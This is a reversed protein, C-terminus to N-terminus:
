LGKLIECHIKVLINVFKYSSYSRRARLLKQVFLFFQPLAERGSVRLWLATGQGGGEHGFAPCAPQALAHRETLIQRETPVAVLFTYINHTFQLNIYM